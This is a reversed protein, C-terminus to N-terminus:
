GRCSGMSSHPGMHVACQVASCQVKTSCIAWPRVLRGTLPMSVPGMVM